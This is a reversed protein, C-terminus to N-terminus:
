FIISFLIFAVVLVLSVGVWDLWDGERLGMWRGEKRGKADKAKGGVGSDEVKGSLAAKSTEGGIGREVKAKRAEESVEVARKEDVSLAKAQSDALIMATLLAVECAEQQHEAMSRLLIALDLEQQRTHAAM